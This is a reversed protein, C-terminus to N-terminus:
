SDDWDHDYDNIIEFDTNELFEVHAIGGAVWEVETFFADLSGVIRGFCREDTLWVLSGERYRM